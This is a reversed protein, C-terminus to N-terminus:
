MDDEKGKEYYRENKRPNWLGGKEGFYHERNRHNKNEEIKYTMTKKQGKNEVELVLELEKKDKYFTDKDTVCLTKNVVGLKKYYPAELQLRYLNNM